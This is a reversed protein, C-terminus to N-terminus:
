QAVGEFPLIQRAEYLGRGITKKGELRSGDIYLGFWDEALTVRFLKTCEMCRGVGELLMPPGRLVTGRIDTYERRHYNRKACRYQIDASSCGNTVPSSAGNGCDTHSM